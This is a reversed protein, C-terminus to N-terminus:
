GNDSSTRVSSGDDLTNATGIATRVPAEDPATWSTEDPLRAAQRRPACGLGRGATFRRAARHAIRGSRDRDGLAHGRPDHHVDETVRLHRDCHVQVRVYALRGSPPRSAISRASPRPSILRTATLAATLRAIPPGPRRVNSGSFRSPSPSISACGSPNSGGVKQDTAISLTDSHM